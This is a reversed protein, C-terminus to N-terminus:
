INAFVVAVGRQEAVFASGICYVKLCSVYARHGAKIAAKHQKLATTFWLADSLKKLSSFETIVEVGKLMVNTIKSQEQRIM